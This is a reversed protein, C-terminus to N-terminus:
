FTIKAAAQFIRPDNAGSIQGFTTNPATATGPNSASPLKFNPHNLVNFAELRLDLALREHIPFIRSIQADFTYQPKGRYANRSVTGFSGSVANNVFALPNL